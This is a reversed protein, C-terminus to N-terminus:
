SKLEERDRFQEHAFAEHRGDHDEPEKWDERDERHGGGGVRRQEGRDRIVTPELLHELPLDLGKLRAVLM